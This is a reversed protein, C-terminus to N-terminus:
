CGQPTGKLIYLCSLSMNYFWIELTFYKEKIDGKLLNKSLGQSQILLMSNKNHDEKNEYLANSTYRKVSSPRKIQFGNKIGM